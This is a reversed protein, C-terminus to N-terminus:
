RVNTSYEKFIKNLEDISFKDGRKEFDKNFYFMVYDEVAKNRKGETSESDRKKSIIGELFIRIDKRLLNAVKKYDKPPPSNYKEIWIVCAISRLIYIYKKLNVGDDGEVTAIYKQFNQRAMSVYHRMLSNKNFYKEFIDKLRERLESDKYIIESSLWEWVSPNSKYLLRLFKRLDWLCIDLDGKTKDIQETINDIKYYDEHVYVGRIDHDSDKSEFNWARSGSEILFLVKIKYQAEIKKIEKLMKINEM